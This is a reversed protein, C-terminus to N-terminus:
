RIFVNLLVGSRLYYPRHMLPHLSSLRILLLRLMAKINADFHGGLVTENGKSLYKSAGTERFDDFSHLFTGAKRVRYLELGQVIRVRVLSNYRGAVGAGPSLRRPM